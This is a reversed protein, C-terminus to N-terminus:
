SFVATCLGLSRRGAGFSLEFHGDPQRQYRCGTGQSGEQEVPPRLIGQRLRLPICDKALRLRQHRLGPLPPVSSGNLRQQQGGGRDLDGPPAEGFLCEEWGCVLSQVVSEGADASAREKAM